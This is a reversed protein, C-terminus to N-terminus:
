GCRVEQIYGDQDLEITLRDLEVPQLEILDYVQRISPAYLVQDPLYDRVELFPPDPDIGQIIERDFDEIEAPKIVRKRGPLGAIYISGEHQGILGRFINSQCVDPRPIRPTVAPRLYEPYIYQGQGPQPQYPPQYVGGPTSGCASLMFIIPLILFALRVYVEDPRIMIALM